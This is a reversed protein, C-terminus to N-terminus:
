SRCSLFPDRAASPTPVLCGKFEIKWGQESLQIFFMLMLINSNQRQCKSIHKFNIRNISARPMFAIFINIDMLIYISIYKPTLIHTYSAGLQVSFICICQQFSSKIGTETSKHYSVLIQSCVALMRHYKALLIFHCIGPGCLLFANGTTNSINGLNNNCM